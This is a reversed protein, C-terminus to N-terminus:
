PLSLMAPPFFLSPHEGPKSRKGRQLTSGYSGPAQAHRVLSCTFLYVCLFPRRHRNITHTHTHLPAPSPSQSNVGHDHLCPILDNSRLHVDAFQGTDPKGYPEQETKNRLLMLDAYVGQFHLSPHSPAM